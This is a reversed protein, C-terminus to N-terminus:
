LGKAYSARRISDIRHAYEPDKNYKESKMLQQFQQKTLTSPLGDGAPDSNEGEDTILKITDSQGDKIAATYRSKLAETVMRQAEFHEPPLAMVANFSALEKDSLNDGAWISMSEWGEDGGILENFSKTNSELQEKEAKAKQALEAMAMKNQGKYLNLYADVLSKGFAEDLKTRTDESLSFDGDKSFLESVVSDVDIGKEEFSAKIDDPVEVEVAEGNFYYEKAVEEPKDQSGGDPLGEEPNDTKPNDSPQTAQEEVSETPTAVEEVENAAEARAKDAEEGVATIEYSM